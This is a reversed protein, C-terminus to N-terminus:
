ISQRRTFKPVTVGKSKPTVPVTTKSRVKAIFTEDSLKELQERIPLAKFLEQAVPEFDAIQTEIVKAMQEEYFTVDAKVTELASTAGDVQGKFKKEVSAKERAIIRNLDADTYKKIEQSKTPEAEENPESQESTTPNKDIEETM